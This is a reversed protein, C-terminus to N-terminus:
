GIDVLGRWIKNQLLFLLWSWALDVVWWWRRDIVKDTFLIVYSGVWRLRWGRVELRWWWLLKVWSEEWRWPRGDKVWWGWNQDRGNGIRQTKPDDVVNEVVLRFLLMFELSLGDPLGVKVWLGYVCLYEGRRLRLVEFGWILRTVKEIRGFLIVNKFFRVEQEVLLDSRQSLHLLVYLRLFQLNRRVDVHQLLLKWLLTLLDFSIHMLKQILPEQLVHFIILPELFMEQLHVQIRPRQVLLIQLLQQNHLQLLM